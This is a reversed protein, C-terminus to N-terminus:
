VTQKQIEALRKMVDNGGRGFYDHLLRYEEYLRDYVCVNSAIPLYERGSLVALKKVAMEVTPYVNAAVSAYIASGRAASQKADSVLIPRGLVDAYIQMLLPDKEAIGGSAVIKEIKIGHFVFNELIMRSGYATGEILARYIEEPKTQLTYGLIVGKLSSDSLVSRNGNFWDLAILGSEGPRLREAKERLYAHIGKGSRSADQEYSAPIGNKVLWDFHDGCCAQGAEYTYFGPIVSDKVAGCIGSIDIKKKSHVMQVGSTGIIMMLVGEDAIGLAPMSAHADLQPVAVPTGEKLGTLLAGNKCLAGASSGIPVIKKSIKTGIISSLRPNAAKLFTDSAYGEEADWQAKYGAFSASHTETETLVYSLWDAAEMFRATEDYIGPAERAIQLIKPFMWESSLKGGYRKIWPERREAALQNLLDADEQAAHHKWLKVYAHPESKYQSHFCLPVFAEDVPLMTCATFDLGIGVVDEACIKGQNLVDSVVYRLVDLYDRPDQLAFDYSLPTGDALQESMVAHPYELVSTACIEGTDADLLIARGSLTGFDIGITYSRKM